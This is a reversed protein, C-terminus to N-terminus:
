VKRYRSQVVSFLGYAAIGAAVLVLLWTGYTQAALAHLAADLGRAKDPDYQIAATLLLVGATGYAVGKAAYGAVGLRRSLRRMRATMQSVKLHKEFKRAVGYIMLGVGIAAVVIGTVAVSIRGLTSVMLDESAQQQTDASSAGKGRLVKVGTWAMYLYFAARGASAIREYM